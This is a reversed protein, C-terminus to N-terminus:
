RWLHMFVHALSIPLQLVVHSWFNWYGRVQAIRAKILQGEDLAALFEVQMDSLVPELIESFTRPSFVLSGLRHLSWGPATYIRVQPQSAGSLRMQTLLVRVRDVNYDCKEVVSVLVSGGVSFLALEYQLWKPMVVRVRWKESLRIQGYLEQGLILFGIGGVIYLQARLFRVELRRRLNM